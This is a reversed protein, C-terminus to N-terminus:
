PLTVSLRYWRDENEPPVEMGHMTGSGRIGARGAVNSWSGGTLIDRSQLGYLRNSSSRFYLTVPPVNSAAIVRFYSAANTPDTDAVHEQWNLHADGDPNGNRDAPNLPDLDYRNEYEDTMSDGDSDATMKDYEYAGIDVTGDAIRPDGGLDGAGTMWAQNIGRNICPSDHRLRYDGAGPSVLAPDNTICHDGIAPTTCTYSFTGGNDEINIEGGATIMNGYVICNTLVGGGECRVGGGEMNATNRSVTCNILKGGSNCYVGGGSYAATNDRILCNTMAALMDIYVGGGHSASTNGSIVCNLLHSGIHDDCFVGGGGSGTATNNSIICNHLAGPELHAGAGSDAYGGTLTFGDVIADPDHMELCRDRNQGDIVTAGPGNVSRIHVNKIVSVLRGSKYTGNSVLVRAGDWAEDVAAQINTAADEWSAFPSIHAGNTAVHLVEPGFVVTVYTDHNVNSVTLPSTTPLPDGEGEFVHVVHWGEAPTFTLTASGGPAVWDTEPPDVTGEGRTTTRVKYGTEYAGIDVQDGLIRPKGDLDMAGTMWPQNMGAGVCPSDYYLQYEGGAPYVFAPDNTVCHDGVAPTTCTHTFAGGTNHWNNDGQASNDYVICNEVQGGTSAVGGGYAAFNRTVTCNRLAGESCFVGGGGGNYVENDVVLCNELTGRSCYVGGGGGDTAFNRVITCNRVTGNSCIIGGGDIASHGNTVTLGELVSNSHVLQFCRSRNQGDIITFKAGLVGVLHVGKDIRVEGDLRYLGNSILVETGDEAVDVAAQINTAATTWNTYPAVHGGNTAVYVTDMDPGFVASIVFDNTINILELRNTPAIDRGNITLRTVRHDPDATLTITLNGGFPVSTRGEPHATGPGSVTTTVWPTWEYAGIDVTGDQIRAKGALDTADAMWAQNAGANVCPSLAWVRYNGEARNVFQPDNTVCHDGILPTTCTHTFTGGNNYWNRNGEASNDYLICNEIRGRTNEVGGGHVAYNGTVTCNRLTGESCLVGGGGGNYVENDVVLCGELTGRDCYVGGGGGDTATNRTITCNRVTGDTCAIGGGASASYGNTITLGELVGKPHLLSFCRDALQGDVITAEAGRIGFVRISKDILVEGSLRYTGNSILVLTGDEAVDIAAQINTAATLWNTYPAVHTGNTAVYVTDPGFVASIEFDNTINTLAILNTPAVQMGNIVLRAVHCGPDATLAVTLNDGLSVSTRGDPQITGPGSATTTVWPTWEYAGMDVTGGMIRPKGEFDTAGTMWAENTGTGICPSRGLLRYDGTTASGASVFAPDDAICNALNPQPTSCTHSFTGVGSWEPLSDATNGYIICNRVTGGNISLGGGRTAANDTITCSLFTGGECYVGGGEITADCAHILCNRVTGRRAYVGGGLDLAHGRTITLNALGAGDNDLHFCRRRGQGDIITDQGGGVGEIWVSDRLEIESDLRYTGNSVLVRTGDEAVDVADHLNTAATEWTTYPAVHTGNTAIYVVAPGFKAEVHIDDTIDTLVVRNTAGVSEHNVLVNVIQHGPDPTITCVLTGLVPVWTDGPPDVTGSGKAHTEVKYGAEHAGIDVTSGIIRPRKGMQDTAGAMWAQNIGAGICPSTDQLAYDYGAADAFRPDNTICNSGIAPITCTHDFTGSSKSYCNPSNNATNGYVVCNVVAADRCYVGGARSFSASAVSNGNITCSQVTGQYVYVGGGEPSTGQTVSNDTITCNVVTGRFCFVGGGSDAASNATVTCRALTGGWELLAGGGSLHSSDASNLRTHGGTLTFGELVAGEGLYACRVANPGSPGAGVITTQRAGSVSRVVIRKTIAVRNSMGAVSAGGTDYRGGGVLVTDGDTAADIADQIRRAATSWDAYPPTGSGARSVYLVRGGSAARSDATGTALTLSLFLAITLARHLPIRM